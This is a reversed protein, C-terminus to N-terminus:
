RKKYISIENKGNNKSIYLAEDAEKIAEALTKNEEYETIGFSLSIENLKEKLKEIKNNADIICCNKLVIIFEDGGYRCVFDDERTISLLLKSVKKLIEDGVQHGFSDNIEKFNDIDCMVVVDYNTEKDLIRRNYTKTLVDYTNENLLHNREKVLKDILKKLEINNGILEYIKKVDNEIM